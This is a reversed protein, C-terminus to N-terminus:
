QPLLSDTSLLKTPYEFSALALAAASAYEDVQHTELHLLRACDQAPLSMLIRLVFSQRFRPPLHLVGSLEPPLTSSEEPSVPLTETQIAGRIIAEEFPENPNWLNIADLVVAEARRSSGTLLMATVFARDIARHDLSHKPSTM